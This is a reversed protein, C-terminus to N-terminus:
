VGEGANGMCVSARLSEHSLRRRVHEDLREDIPANLDDEAQGAISAASTM